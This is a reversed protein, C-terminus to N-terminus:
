SEPLRVVDIQIPCRAAQDKDLSFNNHSSWRWEEPRTALGKRVPNLHMYDLRAIFEKQHRVFRDWFQHQWVPGSAGRAANLARASLWKISQVARSITLPYHTSILAHWHDPMLVYGCLLFGLRRRSENMAAAVHRYEDPKLHERTRHLNATVFFVRDSLLLRHIRSM